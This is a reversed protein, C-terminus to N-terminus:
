GFLAGLGAAADEESVEKEEKKKPEEKAEAPPPAPGAALRKRTEEDMADPARAALALAQAQAKALLFKVSEKTPFGANVSLSLGDRFAKSLLLRITFKTPHGAFVSLNIAHRIADTVQARVKVDDVGLVDRGFVQGAEYASRLDLGVILPFIELRALVAAVERPIRDGKKVLLKDKKVVVKGKEIAAPVGAKQLEGVVPGPKFPTDGARVWIEAPAVEGGKAPAPAKTGELQKFLKFPNLQTTVIAVQGGLASALGELGKKEQAARELAIRLFTNKTVKLDAKDRLQRRMIQLQVAPIGHVDVIGVVAADRMRQVLADVEAVKAPNAHATRAATETM